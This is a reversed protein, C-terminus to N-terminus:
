KAVMRWFTYISEANLPIRGATTASITPGMRDNDRLIAVILMIIARITPRAMQYQPNEGTHTKIAPAASLVIAMVLWMGRAKKNASRAFELEKREMYSYEEGTILMFINGINYCIQFFIEINM